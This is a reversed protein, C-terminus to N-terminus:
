DVVESAACAPCIDAHDSTYKWGPKPDEYVEPKFFGGNCNWNELRKLFETHGCVNCTLDMGNKGPIYYYHRM